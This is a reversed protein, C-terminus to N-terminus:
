VEEIQNKGLRLAKNPLITAHIFLFSYKKWYIKLNIM